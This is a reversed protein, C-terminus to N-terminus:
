DDDADRRHKIEETYQGRSITETASLDRAKRSAEVDTPDAKSVIEWMAIAESYKGHKEYLQALSRNTSLSNPEKDRVKELLWLALNPFGLAEAAEAMDMQAGVDWPNRALIDEGLELVRLHEGAAKAAKLKTRAPSTTLFSLRTGRQNDQYKRREIKRLLRRYTLNGPDIKCCSQLLHIGYDLGGLAIVEKAREYQGSAARLVESKPGGPTALDQVTQREQWGPEAPGANRAARKRSRPRRAPKSDRGEKGMEGRGLAKLLEAPTQYRKAPDKALMRELLHAQWAPVASNFQRINPPSDHLHKYLREALGGESFPPRGALMHYWTCGLSYIDSRIDATSSDRAQEPSMYDITGVTHGAQTIRFAADDATRALGLDTLKALFQDNKPTLLVNSPKVDRHVMRHRHLHDLARTVQTLIDAAEDPELQGKKTIHQYLDIGEIFELALFYTGNAEGFEYIAVINEHRLRAVNRAERRFREIVATKTALDLPLIKLAVTRGLNADVAKYVAAIGGTAIHAVIDYKGVRSYRRVGTDPEEAAM